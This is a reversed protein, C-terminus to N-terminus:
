SQIRCFFFCLIFFSRLRVGFNELGFLREAQLEEPPFANPDLAQFLPHSEGRAAAAAADGNPLPTAQLWKPLINNM